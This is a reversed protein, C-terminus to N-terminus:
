PKSIAMEHEIGAIYNVIAHDALTRVPVMSPRLWQLKALYVVEGALRRRAVLWSEPNRMLQGRATIFEQEGVHWFGFAAPPVTTVVDCCNVFRRIPLNQMLRRFSEDGVRPSGFTVLAVPPRRAAALTALAAGLSYGTYWAPVTLKALTQEVHPWVQDLAALFGGHVSIDKNYANPFFSFDTDFDAPHEIQTGCFVLAAFRDNGTLFSKTSTGEFFGLLQLGVRQLEDKLDVQPFYALQCLNALWWGNALRLESGITAPDFPPKTEFHAFVARKEPHCLGEITFDNQM